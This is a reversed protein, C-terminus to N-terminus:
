IPPRATGRISSIAVWGALAHRPVVRRPPREGAGVGHALSSANAHSGAGAGVAVGRRPAPPLDAATARYSKRDHAGDMRHVHAATGHGAAQRAGRRPPGQ